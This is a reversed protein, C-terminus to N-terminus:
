RVILYFCLCQCSFVRAASQGNGLLAMLLGVLFGFCLLVGGIIRQGTPQAAPQPPPPPAKEGEEEQGMVLQDLSVGFLQSLKVLKDLDPVAGDNEWKSVSQRSVDLADAVDGQSLHHELRMQRIREGLTM